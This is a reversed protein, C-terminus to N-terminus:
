KKGKKLQKIQKEFDSNIKQVKNFQAYEKEAKNDAEIKSIKGKGELIEYKNFVLFANISKSLGDMTFTTETEIIREIYDFYSSVTRELQKIETEELYNKAITVDSKLVRGDPANKFSSLGMKEQEANAKTYIIEAATQGTIAFHFKNQVTAFFDKTIQSNKDYDISCEAFIDTIQLYIRRESTRISRVRELLEKFYDKGFYQGNKLRNDDMVFGKIIYEKLTNTAWMRFHTAQISNVRYGVSLIADLNYFRIDRRVKRKGEIQVIPFNGITSVEDLENTKYINKLHENITTVDVGFLESMRKQSLWITENHLFAEVKIEGSPATYLLFETMEDKLKIENKM